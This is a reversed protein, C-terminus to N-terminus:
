IVVCMEDWAAHSFDGAIAQIANRGLSYLGNTDQIGLGNIIPRLRSTMEVERLPTNIPPSIKEPLPEAHIM